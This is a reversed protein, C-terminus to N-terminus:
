LSSLQIYIRQSIVLRAALYAKSGNIIVLTSLLCPHDWSCNAAYACANM